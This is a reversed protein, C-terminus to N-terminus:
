ISKDEREHKNEQELEKIRLEVMASILKAARSFEEDSKEKTLKDLRKNVKRLENIRIKAEVKGM